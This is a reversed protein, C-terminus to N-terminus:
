IEKELLIRNEKVKDISEANIILFGYKVLYLLMERRTNRTKIRIKRYNNNKAWKDQFDMMKKLVGRNRFKPIVGTMWCYFTQSKAGNPTQENDYGILYGAPKGNVYAIILLHKKKKYREEFESQTESKDFEPIKSNVRLIEEITSQKVAIKMFFINCRSTFIVNKQINLKGTSGAM